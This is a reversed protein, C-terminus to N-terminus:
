NIDINPNIYQLQQIFKMREEEPFRMRNSRRQSGHQLYYVVVEGKDNVDVSTITSIRIMFHRIFLKDEEIKVGEKLTKYWIYIVLGFPVLGVLFHILGNRLNVTILLMAWLAMVTYAIVRSLTTEEQRYVTKM